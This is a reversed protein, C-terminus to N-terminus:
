IKLPRTKKELIFDQWVIKVLDQSHSECFFRGSSGAKLVPPRGIKLNLFSQIPDVQRM